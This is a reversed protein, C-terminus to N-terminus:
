SCPINGTLVLNSKILQEHHWITDSKSKWFLKGDLDKIDTRLIFKYDDKGFSIKEFRYSVKKGEIGITSTIPYDADFINSIYSALFVIILSALWLIVFKNKM